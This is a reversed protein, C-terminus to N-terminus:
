CQHIGVVLRQDTSVSDGFVPGRFLEDFKTHNTDLQQRQCQGFRGEGVPVWLDSNPDKAHEKLRQASLRRLDDVSCVSSEFLDQGLVGLKWFLQELATKTRHQHVQGVVLFEGNRSQLCEGSQQFEQDRVELNFNAAFQEVM